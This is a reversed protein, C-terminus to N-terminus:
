KSIRIKKGFIQLKSQEHLEERKEVSTTWMSELHGDREARSVLIGNRQQTMIEKAVEVNLNV